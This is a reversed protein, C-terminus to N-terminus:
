ADGPAFQRIEGPEIGAGLAKSVYDGVSTQTRLPRPLSRLPALRPSVRVALPHAHRREWGRVGGRARAHAGITGFDHVGRAPCRVDYSFSATEGRGVSLVARHRGGTLAADRPLAGVVVVLPLPSGARLTITVTVADDEFLRDASLAGSVVYDPPRRPLALTL